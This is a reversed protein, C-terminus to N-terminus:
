IHQGFSDIIADVRKKIARLTPAVPKWRIIDPTAHYFCIERSCTPEMNMPEKGRAVEAGDYAVIRRVAFIEGGSPASEITRNDLVGAGFPIHRHKDINNLQHLIWLPDGGWYGVVQAYPQAAEVLAIQDNNLGDLMKNGGSGVARDRFGAQTEFIPFMTKNTISNGNAIVMECVLNDLASRLMYCIAGVFVGWEAIPPKCGHLKHVYEGSDADLEPVIRYAGPDKFFDAFMREITDINCAAVRVKLRSGEFAGLPYFDSMLM